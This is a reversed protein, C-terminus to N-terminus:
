FVLEFITWSDKTQLSFLVLSYFVSVHAIDMTCMDSSQISKHKILSCVFVWFLMQEMYILM